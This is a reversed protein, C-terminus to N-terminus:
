KEWYWGTGDGTYLMLGNETASFDTVSRMDLYDPADAYSTNEPVAMGVFFGITFVCSIVALTKVKM